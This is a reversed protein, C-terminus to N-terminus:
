NKMFKILLKLPYILITVTALGGIWLAVFWLCQKLKPRAELWKIPTNMTQKEESFM